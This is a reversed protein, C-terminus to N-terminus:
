AISSSPAMTKLWTNLATLKGSKLAAGVSATDASRFDVTTDNWEVAFSAKTNDTYAVLASLLASFSTVTKAASPPTTTLTATWTTDTFLSLLNAHKDRNALAFDNRVGTTDKSMAVQSRSITDDTTIEFMGKSGDSYAVVGSLKLAYSRVTSM